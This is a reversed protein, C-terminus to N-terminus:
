ELLTDPAKTPGQNLISDVPDVKPTTIEPQSPAPKAPPAAPQPSAPTAGLEQMADMQEIDKYYEKVVQPLEGNLIPTMMDKYMSEWTFAADNRHMGYHLGTVPQQGGYSGAGSPGRRKKREISDGALSFIALRIAADGAPILRLSNVLEQGRPMENLGFVGGITQFTTLLSGAAAGLAAVPIFGSGSQFAQTLEYGSPMRGKEIAELGKALVPGVMALWRGFIPTRLLLKGASALPAEEYDKVVDELPKGAAMSLAAMYLMDLLILSTLSFGARVVGVRSSKRIVQQSAFLVPYRRYIEFIQEFTGRPGTATDFANPALIAEEVYRREINKLATIIDLKQQFEKANTRPSKTTFLEQTMEFPSYRGEAPMMELLMSLRTPELLGAKILYSIIPLNNTGIKAKRLIGKLAPEQEEIPLKSLNSEELLRALESLKSTGDKNPKLYSQIFSRINIARAATINKLQWKALRMNASGLGKLAKLVTSDGETGLPREYEPLFGQTMSEILYAFDKLVRARETRNTLQSFPALASRLFGVINGRGILEDVASYGNEVITTALFLNGGYAIRTAANAYDVISSEVSGTNTGEPKEIINRLANHKNRLVEVVQKVRQGEISTGDPAMVSYDSFAVSSILTLVHEINGHVGFERFMKKEAIDNFLGQKANEALAAMDTVFYKQIDENAELAERVSPIAWNDNPYYAGRSARKHFNRFIFEIPNDAARDFAAVPTDKTTPSFFTNSRIDGSEKTLADLRNRADASRKNANEVATKYETVFAIRQSARTFISDLTITGQALKNLFRGTGVQLEVFSDVNATDNLKAKLLNVKEKTQRETDGEQKVAEALIADVLQPYQANLRELDARAATNNGFHPILGVAAMVTGDLLGSEIGQSLRKQILSTMTDKFEPARVDEARLSNGLRYPVVQTFGEGFEGISIGDRINDEAMQTFTNKIEGLAKLIVAKQKDNLAVGLADESLDFTFEAEGENLKTVSTILQKDLKAMVKKDTDSVFSEFVTRKAVDTIGRLAAAIQNKSTRISTSFTELKQINTRVSPTGATNLYNGTATVINDDLMQTILIPLLFEAGFTEGSGTDGLLLNFLAQKAAAQKVNPISDAISNGIAGLGKAIPDGYTKSVADMLYALATAKEKNTGQALIERIDIISEDNNRSDNELDSRKKSPYKEKLQQLTALYDSRSLGNLGFNEQAYTGEAYLFDNIKHKTLIEEETLEAKSNLRALEKHGKIIQLDKDPDVVFEKTDKFRQSWGYTADAVQGSDLQRLAPKGTAADHGWVRLALARVEKDFKENGTYFANQLNNLINSVYTMMRKVISTLENFMGKQKKTLDRIEVNTDGLLFYSMFGAIFEEPNNLYREYEKKAESTFVGGHFAQVAKRLMDRGEDSQWLGLLGNYERSNDAIFKLRAVHALEHAVIQIATLPNDKTITKFNSGLRITFNDGKREAQAVGELRETIFEFKLNLLIDPNLQNARFLMAKIAVGAEESLVKQERILKNLNRIPGRVMLGLEPNDEIAPGLSTLLEEETGKTFLELSESAIREGGFFSMAEDIDLREEDLDRFAFRLADELQDDTGVFTPDGLYKKFALLTEEFNAPSYEQTTIFQRAEYYGPLKRTVGYDSTHKKIKLIISDAKNIATNFDDGNREADTFFMKIKNKRFDLSPDELKLAILRVVVSSMNDQERTLAILSQLELKLDALESGAQIGSRDLMHILKTIPSVYSELWATNISGDGWSSNDRAYYDLDVVNVRAGRVSTLPDDIMRVSSEGDVSSVRRLAEAENIAADRIPRATYGMADAVRDQIPVARVIQGDETLKVGLGKNLWNSLTIGQMTQANELISFLQMRHEPTLALKAKKSKLKTRTMVQMGFGTAAGFVNRQQTPVAKKDREKGKEPAVGERNITMRYTSIKSDDNYLSEEIGVTLEFSPMEMVMQKALAILPKRDEPDIAFEWQDPTFAVSKYKGGEFELMAKGIAETFLQAALFKNFDANQVAWSELNLDKFEFIEEMTKEDSVNEPTIIIREGTPVPGLKFADDLLSRTFLFGDPNNEDAVNVLLDMYLEGEEAPNVAAFSQRETFLQLGRRGEPDKLDRSYRSIDHLGGIWKNRAAIIDNENTINSERTRRLQRKREEEIERIIYFRVFNEPDEKLKDALGREEAWISVEYYIKAARQGMDTRLDAAIARPLTPLVQPLKNSDWAPAHGINVGSIMADEETLSDANTRITEIPGMAKTIRDQVHRKQLSLLGMDYYQREKFRPRMSLPGRQGATHIMVSSPNRESVHYPLYRFEGESAEVLKKNVLGGAKNKLQLVPSDTPRKGDAIMRDAEAQEFAIEEKLTLHRQESHQHWQTLLNNFFGEDSDEATYDKFVEKPPKDYSSWLMMEQKIMLDELAAEAEERTEFKRLSPDELDFAGFADAGDHNTLYDELDKKFEAEDLGPNREVYDIFDNYRVGDKVFPQMRAVRELSIGLPNLGTTNLPYTRGSTATPLMLQYLAHQEFGMFDQVSFDTLGLVRQAVFQLRDVNLRYEQSNLINLARFYGISEASLQDTTQLIKKFTEYAVTGPHIPNSAKEQEELYAKAKEFRKNYGKTKKWQEFTLDAPNDIEYKQRLSDELLRIHTQSRELEASLAKNDLKVLEKWTDLLPVSRTQDIGLYKQVLYKTRDNVGLAYDILITKSIHTAGGNGSFLVKKLAAIDEESTMGAKKLAEYGKGGESFEVDFNPKSGGYIRRMVPVKFIERLLKLKKKDGESLGAEKEQLDKVSRIDNKNIVDFLTQLGGKKGMAFLPAAIIATSLYFDSEAKTGPEIVGDRIMDLLKPANVKKTKGDVEIEITSDADGALSLLKMEFVGSATRDSWNEFALLEDLTGEKRAADSYQVVKDIVIDTLGAFQPGMAEIAMIEGIRGLPVLMHDGHSLDFMLGGEVNLDKIKKTVINGEKDLVNIEKEGQGENFMLASGRKRTVQDHIFAEANRPIDLMLELLFEKAEARSMVAEHLSGGVIQPVVFIQANEGTPDPDMGALVDSWKAEVWEKYAAREADTFTDKSLIYRMRERAKFNQILEALKMVPIPMAANTEGEQPLRIDTPLSATESDENSETPVTNGDKDLVVSRQQVAPMPKQSMFDVIGYGAIQASAYDENGNGLDTINIDTQEGIQETLYEVVDARVNGERDRIIIETRGDEKTRSIETLLGLSKAVQQLETFRRTGFLFQLREKAHYLAERKYTGASNTFETPFGTDPDVAIIYGGGEGQRKTWNAMNIARSQNHVRELLKQTYFLNAASNPDGENQMEKSLEDLIFSTERAEWGDIKALGRDKWARIIALIKQPDYRLLHQYRQLESISKEDTLDLSNHDLAETPMLASNEAGLINGRGFVVYPGLGLFDRFYPPLAAHIRWAAIGKSPDTHSAIALIKQELEIWAELDSRLDRTFVVDTDLEKGYNSENLVFEPDYSTGLIDSDSHQHEWNGRVYKFRGGKNIGSLKGISLYKLQDKVSQYEKGEIRKAEEITLTEKGKSADREIAAAETQAQESYPHLFNLFEEMTIDEGSAEKEAIFENFLARRANLVSEQEKKERLGTQQLQIANFQQIDKLTESRYISSMLRQYNKRAAKYQKFLSVHKKYDERKNYREEHKKMVTGLMNMYNTFTNKVGGMTIGEEKGSELDNVFQRIRQAAKSEDGKTLEALEKWAERTDEQTKDWPLKSLEPKGEETRKSNELNLDRFLLLGAKERAARLKNLRVFGFLIGDKTDTIDKSLTEKLVNLETELTKMLQISDKVEGDELGHTELFSELEGEVFALEEDIKRGLEVINEKTKRNVGKFGKDLKEQIEAKAKEAREKMRKLREILEARREIPGDGPPPKRKPKDDEGKPEGGTPADEPKPDPKPEAAELEEELGDATEEKDKTSTDLDRIAQQQKLITEQMYELAVDLKEETTSSDFKDGMKEKVAELVQPALLKWEENDAIIKETYEKYTKGEKKADSALRLHHQTWGLIKEFSSTDGDNAELIVDRNRNVVEQAIESLLIEQDVGLKNRPHSPDAAEAQFDALIEKVTTLFDGKSLGTQDWIAGLIISLIGDPRDPKAEDDQIEVETGELTLDNVQSSLELSLQANELRKIADDANLYKKTTDIFRSFAKHGKEGIVKAAVSDSVMYSLNVAGGGLSYIGGIAPNIAPSLAAEFLAEKFIGGYSFEDIVGATSQRWQNGAEALGGTVLGEGADGIRNAILHKQVFGGRSFNKMAPIKQILTPGINEPMYRITTTAAKRIMNIFKVYKVGQYLTKPIKYALTAIVGAKLGAISGITTLGATIGLSAALDPDNVIGEIIFNRAYELAIETNSADEYWKAITTNLAATQITDTLTYFFDYPNKAEGVIQELNSAGLSNAYVAYMEPDRLQLVKLAEQPSWDPPAEAEMLDNPSDNLNNLIPADWMDEVGDLTEDIFPDSLRSLNWPSKKAYYRLLKEEDAGFKLLDGEKYKDGRYMGLQMNASYKQQYQNDEFMGGFYGRASMLAMAETIGYNGRVLEQTNLDVVLQDPVNLANDGDTLPNLGQVFDNYQGVSERMEEQNDMYFPLPETAWKNIGQTTM